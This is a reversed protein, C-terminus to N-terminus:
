LGGGPKNASSRSFGWWSQNAPSGNTIDSQKRDWLARPLRHTGPHYDVMVAHEVEVQVDLNIDGNEGFVKSAGVGRHVIRSTPGFIFDRRARVEAAEAITRVPIHDTLAVFV